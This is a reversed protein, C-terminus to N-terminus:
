RQNTISGPKGFTAEDETIDITLGNDNWPIITSEISVLTQGKLSLVFTYIKGKLFDTASPLLWTFYQAPDTGQAAISFVVKTGAAALHPIILGEFRATDVEEATASSPPPMVPLEFDAEAGASLTADLLAIDASAPTGSLTATMQDVAVTSSNERGVYFRIKSLQHEFQLAVPTNEVYVQSKANDSYLVDLDDLNMESQASLDVHIEPDAGPLSADYPYYSIFDATTDKPYFMIHDADIPNFDVDSSGNKDARYLFNKYKSQNINDGHTFMYIGISDASKWEDGGHQTRTMSGIKGSMFRIPTNEATPCGEYSDFISCGYMGGFLLFATTTLFIQKTKM